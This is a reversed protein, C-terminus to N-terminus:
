RLIIFVINKSEKSSSILIIPSDFVPNIVKIYFPNNISYIPINGDDISSTHEIEYTFMLNNLVLLM